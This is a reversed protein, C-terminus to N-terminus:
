QGTPASCAEVSESLRQSTALLSEFNIAYREPQSITTRFECTSSSMAWFASGVFANADCNTAAIIQVDDGTGLRGDDAVTV